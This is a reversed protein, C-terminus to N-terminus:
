EKIGLDPLYDMVKLGNRVAMQYCESQGIRNDLQSPQHADCGIIAKCGIEGALKLFHENTYHRHGIVGLMNIEVPQDHAKLYECLRRYHKDYIEPAGSFGMLDPHALYAYRGTEMGEIVSDVYQRLTEEESFMRGTYFSPERTLFHQGLIHYDVPYDALLKDQEPLLEPIYESEFGIYITIDKKYEDQLKTLNTFYGEVECLYMRTYSIYDDPYVWPCHDSFGLIKMGNRIASEVYAKDEGEAHNCRYTHTHYNAFM